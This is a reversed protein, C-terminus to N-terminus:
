DFWITFYKIKAMDPIQDLRVKDMGFENIGLDKKDIAITADLEDIFLVATTFTSEVKNVTYNEVIDNFTSSVNLGKITKYRNDFIQISEITSTSDHQESPIITLMHKGGKEFVLYEDYEANAFDGEGLNSVLSDKAFISELENIQTMSTLKGLQNKDITFNNEKKCQIFVISLLLLLIIKKM